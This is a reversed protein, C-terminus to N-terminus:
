AVRSFPPQCRVPESKSALVASADEDQFFAYETSVRKHVCDPAGVRYFSETSTSPPYWGCGVDRLANVLRPSRVKKPSAPPRNVGSKKISEKSRRLRPFLDSCPNKQCLEGEVISAPNVDSRISSLCHHAGM